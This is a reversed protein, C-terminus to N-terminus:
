QWRPHMTIARALTAVECEHSRATQRSKNWTLVQASGTAPVFVTEAAWVVWPQRQCSVELPSAEFGAVVIFTSDSEVQHENKANIHPGTSHTALGTHYGLSNVLRRVLDPRVAEVMAQARSYINRFLEGPKLQNIAFDLVKRTLDYADQQDEEPNVLMTRTVTAAYEDYREFLNLKMLIIFM